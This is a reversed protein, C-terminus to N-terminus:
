RIRSFLGRGEKMYGQRCGVREGETNKVVFGEGEEQKRSLLGQGEEQM